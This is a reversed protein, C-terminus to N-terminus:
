VEEPEEVRGSDIQEAAHELAKRQRRRRWFWTGGSALLVGVIIFTPWNFYDVVTEWKDEVVVGLWIIAYSWLAMGLVTYLTFKGLPMRAIGAPFSILTRVVPIMRSFFTAAEGHKDWWVETKGVDQPKIMVFRGYRFLLDRGMKKGIAYLIWAFVLNGLTAVLGVMWFDLRGDAAYWGGVMLTVESPFVIDAVMLAFIAWYGYSTVWEEMAHVIGEMGPM